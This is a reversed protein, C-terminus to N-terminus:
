CPRRQTKLTCMGMANISLYRHPINSPSGKLLHARDEDLDAGIELLFRAPHVSPRGRKGEPRIGPSPPQRKGSPSLRLPAALRQQLFSLASIWFPSASPRAAAAVKRPMMRTHHASKWRQGHCRVASLAVSFLGPDRPRGHSGEPPIQRVSPGNPFLGSVDLRGSLHGHFM